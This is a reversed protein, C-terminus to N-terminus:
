GKRGAPAFPGERERTRNSREPGCPSATRRTGPDPQETRARMPAPGEREWTRNRPPGARLPSPGERERTRNTREPGCPRSDKANGPGTAPRNEGGRPHTTSNKWKEPEVPSGNCDQGGERPWQIPTGPALAPGTAWRQLASYALIQVPKASSGELDGGGGPGPCVVRPFNAAEFDPDM